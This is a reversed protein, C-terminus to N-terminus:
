TLIYSTFYILKLYKFKSNSSLKIFKLTLLKIKNNSNSGLKIFKLALWKIKLKYMIFCKTCFALRELLVERAIFAVSHGGQNPM